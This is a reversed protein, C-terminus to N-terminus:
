RLVPNKYRLDIQTFKGALDGQTKTYILKLAGLLVETEGELPFIVRIPGTLDVVLTDNILQGLSIQYMENVGSILKLAFLNNDGVYDGPKPLEHDIDIVPLTTQKNTSLVKGDIDTLAVMGAAKNQLAFVPKKVVVQVLVVNPLKFQLIYSSVLYNKKLSKSIGAKASYLSKNKYNQLDRLVESPCEGFQSQCKIGIKLFFPWGFILMVAVLILVIYLIKKVIM